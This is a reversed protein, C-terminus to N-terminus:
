PNVIFGGLLPAAPLTLTNGGTIVVLQTNGATAASLDVTCNLQIGASAGTCAATFNASGQVFKVQTSCSAATSSCPLNAGKITFALNSLTGGSITGDYPSMTSVRPYTSSTTLMLRVKQLFATGNYDFTTAPPNSATYTPVTVPNLPNSGGYPVVAALYYTTGGVSCSTAGADGCFTYDGPVLGTLTTLGGSDTTPRTDSSRMNDYYYSTDATSTYRKYGGKIYIKAGPLAAGSTNTTEVILSNPGQPKLALTVFSSNQALLNQNPYTPQLTGAPVITTLSSYGSLSASVNYDYSSTDPALGYFIVIGNEDSVDSVTPQALTSNTVTVSAGTIPNGSDDVVKIFMAGTNSATEAVRAAINSDMYALRLGGVDTVKVSVSKYDAANSDVAPAGTPPPYSRCYLQKNVQSPYTACGDYADDAYSISTKVTYKVGNIIKVSTGPITNNSPIAGGAIALNDYPLSKLYEMQNTALTLAVAQRKAVVSSHLLATFLTFFALSIISLVLISLLLEVLTYGGEQRKM